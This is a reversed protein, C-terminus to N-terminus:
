EKRALPAREQETRGLLLRKKVRHIWCGHPRSSDQPGWVQRKRRSPSLVLAGRVEVSGTPKESSWLRHSHAWPARLTTPSTLIFVLSGGGTHTHSPQHSTTAEPSQKWGAEGGKGEYHPWGLAGNGPDPGKLNLQLFFCNTCAQFASVILM